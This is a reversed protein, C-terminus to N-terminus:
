FKRAEDIRQILDTTDGIAEEIAEVAECAWQYSELSSAYETNFKGARQKIDIADVLRAKLHAQHDVADDRCRALSRRVQRYSPESGPHPAKRRIEDMLVIAQEADLKLNRIRSPHLPDSPDSTVHDPERLPDPM